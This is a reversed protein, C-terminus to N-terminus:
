SQNKAKAERRLEPKRTGLTTQRRRVVVAAAPRLVEEVGNVLEPQSKLQVQLRRTLNPVSDPRPLGLWEALEGSRRKVPWSMASKLPGRDTM